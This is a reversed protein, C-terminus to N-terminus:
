HFLFFDFNSGTYKMLSEGGGGRAGAGTCSPRPHGPNKMGTYSFFQKTRLIKFKGAVFFGEFWYQLICFFFFCTSNIKGPMALDLDHSNKLKESVYTLDLDVLQPLTKHIKRFVQCYYEWAQNLDSGAQTTKYRQCWEEALGLDRGFAQKFAVERLTEPGECMYLCFVFLNVNM